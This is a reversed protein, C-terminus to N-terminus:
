AQHFTGAFHKLIQWIKPIRFGVYNKENKLKTSSYEVYVLSNMLPFFLTARFSFRFFSRPNEYELLIAFKSANQQFMEDLM